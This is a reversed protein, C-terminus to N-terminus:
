ETYITDTKKYFTTVQCIGLLDVRQHGRCLNGVAHTKISKINKKLVLKLMIINVLLKPFYVLYSKKTSSMNLNM